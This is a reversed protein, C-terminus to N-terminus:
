SRLAGTARAEEIEDTLRRRAAGYLEYDAENLKRLLALDGAPLDSARLRQPNANHSEIEAPRHWHFRERALAVSENMQETIGVFCAQKLRFTAIDLLQQTSQTPVHVEIHRELELNSLEERSMAAAVSPPDFEVALARVQFNNLTTALEPDRLYSGFDGMAHARAHLYHPAAAMIHGYHSLAREVPDRVFTVYRMAQPVYRHLHAYFHGRILSCKGIQEPSWALLQSWLHAPCIDSEDYQTSLFTHFTTGATKPIHLFYVPSSTQGVEAANPFGLSM